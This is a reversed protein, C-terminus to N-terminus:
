VKQMEYNNEPIFRKFQDKFSHVARFLQKKVSGETCDLYEAIEKLSMQQYHRLIFVMRQRPSINSLAEETHELIERSRQTEEPNFAPQATTLTHMDISDEGLEKRTKVRRLHDISCNIGIRYLWASFSTDKGPRFTSLKNFAKIFAEQFIDETDQTNRTYQYALAYIKRKNDDFLTRFADTDGKQAAQILEAENM